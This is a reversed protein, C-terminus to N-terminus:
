APLDNSRRCTHRVRRCRKDFISAGAPLLGVTVAAPAIHVRLLRLLLCMLLSLVVLLLVGVTLGVSWCCSCLM